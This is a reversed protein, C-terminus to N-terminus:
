LCSNDAIGRGLKVTERVVQGGFLVSYFVVKRSDRSVRIWIGRFQIARPNTEVWLPAGAIM